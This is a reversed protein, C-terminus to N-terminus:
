SRMQNLVELAKSAGSSPLNLLEIEDLVIKNADHLLENGTATLTALSRRADRESKETIVFGIKELPKLARTIASPTLGVADALDVRTASGKYKDQLENLLYYETFSVGKTCSLARDLKREIRSATKLLAFVFENNSKM